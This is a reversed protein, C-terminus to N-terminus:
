GQAMAADIATDLDAAADSTADKIRPLNVFDFTNISGMCRYIDNPLSM